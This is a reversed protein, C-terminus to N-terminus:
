KNENENWKNVISLGSSEELNIIALNYDYLAKEYASKTNILTLKAQLFELYNIEGAQYSVNAIRYIEEANPLMEDQYLRMQKEDNQFVIFDNKIKAILTNKTKQVEYFSSQYNAESEQIKGKNEFMFWIPLSVGFNVGYYKSSQQNSQLSYGINFSPALSSWAITKALNASEKMFEARKIQPNAELAKVILNDLSINFADATLSDTLIVEAEDISNDNDGLSLHLESVATMYDRNATELRSKAESFQAKATLYELNSVEGSKFRIEAKKHFDEAIALNEKAIKILNRQSLTNFYARLVAKQIQLIEISYNSKVANVDADAKNARSFYLSPFDFTQSIAITREDYNSIGKGSPIFENSVTINLPEPSNDKLNKSEEAEIAFKAIHASPHNKYAFKLAEKVSLTSIRKPDKEQSFAFSVLFCLMFGIFIKQM